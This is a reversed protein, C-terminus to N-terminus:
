GRKKNEIQQAIVRVIKWDYDSFSEKSIELEKFDSIEMDQDISFILVNWEKEQLTLMVAGANNILESQRLMDRNKNVAIIVSLKYKAITFMKDKRDVLQEELSKKVIADFGKLTQLDEEGVFVKFPGQPNFGLLKRVTKPYDHNKDDMGDNKDDDPIDLIFSPSDEIDPEKGEEILSSPVEKEYSVDPLSIEDESKKLDPDTKSELDILFSEDPESVPVIMEEVAEEQKDEIVINEAAPENVNGMKEEVIAKGYEDFLYLQDPDDDEEDEESAESLDTLHLSDGPVENLDYEDDFFGLIENEDAPESFDLPKEDMVEDEDFVDVYSSNVDDFIEENENEIMLDENDFQDYDFSDEYSLFDKELEKDQKEILDLPLEYQYSLKSVEDRSMKKYETDSVYSDLDAYQNELDIAKEDDDVDDYEYEDTTVEEKLDDIDSNNDEEYDDLVSDLTSDDYDSAEVENSSGFVFAYFKEREELNNSVKILYALSLRFDTRALREVEGNGEFDVFINIVSDTGSSLVDTVLEKYIRFKQPANYYDPQAVPLLSLMVSEGKFHYYLGNHTEFLNAALHNVLQEVMEFAFSDPFHENVIKYLVKIIYHSLDRNVFCYHLGAIGIFPKLGSLLHGEEFLNESDGLGISFQDLAEHSLNSLREIMYYDYNNDFKQYEPNAKLLEAMIADEGRRDGELRRKDVEDQLALMQELKRKKYYNSDHTSNDAIAFLSRELLVAPAKFVTEIKDSYFDIFSKVVLKLAEVEETKYRHPLLQRLLSKRYEDLMTLPLKGEKVCLFSYMDIYRFIRRTFDECYGVLRKFDFEKINRNSSFGREIRMDQTQLCSQILYPFIIKAPSSLDDSASFSLNAARELISLPYYKKLIGTIGQIDLRIFREADSLNKRAKDERMEQLVPLDLLAISM